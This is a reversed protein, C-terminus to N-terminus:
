PGPRRSSEPRGRFHPDAARQTAPWALPTGPCGVLCPTVCRAPSPLALQARVFWKAENWKEVSRMHTTGAHQLYAARYARRRLCINQMCQYTRVRYKARKTVTHRLDLFARFICTAQTPSHGPVSPSYRDTRIFARVGYLCSDCSRARAQISTTTTPERIAGASLRATTKHIRRRSGLRPAESAGQNIPM